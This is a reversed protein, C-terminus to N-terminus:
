DTDHKVKLLDLYKEDSDYECKVGRVDNSSSRSYDLGSFMDLSLSVSGGLSSSQIENSNLKEILSLCWSEGVDKHSIYYYGLKFEDPMVIYKKLGNFFYGDSGDSSIFVSSQISSISVGGSSGFSISDILYAPIIFVPVGNFEFVNVSAKREIKRSLRLRYRDDFEEVTFYIDKTKLVDRNYAVGFFLKLFKAFVLYRVSGRLKVPFTATNM